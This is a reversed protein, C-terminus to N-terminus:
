FFVAVDVGELNDSQQVGSVDSLILSFATTSKSTITVLYNYSTYRGASSVVTYDDNPPRHNDDFTFTHTASSKSYGGNAVSSFGYGVMNSHASGTGVRAFARCAYIPADDGNPLNAINRANSM